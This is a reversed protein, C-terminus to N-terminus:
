HPQAAMDEGRRKERVRESITFDICSISPPLSHLFPCIHMSLFLAILFDFSDHTMVICVLGEEPFVQLFYLCLFVIYLTKLTHM